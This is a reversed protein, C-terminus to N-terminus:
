AIRRFRLSLCSMGGDVKAAESNPLAVVAYGATRLLDATRPFGAPLLVVDNIRVANAAAEEGDPVHILRYDGLHGGAALRRTTLITEGDLLGCDTKFHLIEPPTALERVRYGWDRVVERLAEIGAGNTRASRGVLIERDTVLVDGGEIRGHGHDGLAPLHRVKEFAELLAPEIMVAEGLRTPAGPRLVVAGEPLCLAADEVFVSDPFEELPALVTTALGAAELADRYAAHQARFLAADPSGTDIARLGDVISGAPARLIAHTFRFSQGPIPM